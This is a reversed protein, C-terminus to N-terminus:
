FTFTVGLGLIMVDLNYKEVFPLGFAEVRKEREKGMCYVYAFDLKMRGTQYGIGGLLTLKDVDINTINLTAEPTAYRDLGVGGRLALGGPILYEFGVRTILINEFDLKEDLNMEGAMPVNLIRKEVKDLISWMTYQASSSFLLRDSIRYSLGVEVDWPLRFSTTSDLNLRYIDYNITTIGSLTMKAPGRINVGIGLRDNPRYLFGFGASLASGSERASTPGYPEMETDLHFTGRYLNLNFGVSFKENVQYSLSPTISAVAMYSKLPFGLEEKKWDVGSGAYPIYMGFGLTVKESTRYSLFIQPIPTDYKSQLRNGSATTYEHTPFVYFGDISLNLSDQQLVLGAPNYFIASPDDAVAIFAGGIAIARCGILTNNWGGAWLLASGLLFGVVFLSGKRKM